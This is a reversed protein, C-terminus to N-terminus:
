RIFPAFQFQVYHPFRVIDTGPMHVKFFDAQISPPFFNFPEALTHFM